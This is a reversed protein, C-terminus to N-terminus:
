AKHDSIAVIRFHDSAEFQSILQRSFGSADRDVVQLNINRVEYDAAHPLILLQVFPMLFLIPLMTRHRFIQRFEKQVIFLITRM